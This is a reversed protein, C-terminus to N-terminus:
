LAEKLKLCGEAKEVGDDTQKLDFFWMGCVPHGGENSFHECIEYPPKYAWCYKGAPVTIPFLVKKNGM